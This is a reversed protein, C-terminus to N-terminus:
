QVAAAEAAAQAAAAEAAQQAALDAAVQDTASGTPFVAGNQAASIVAYIQGLDQAQMYGDMAATVGAPAGRVGVRGCRPM